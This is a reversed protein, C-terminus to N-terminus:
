SGLAILAAGHWYLHAMQITKEAIFENFFLLLRNETLRFCKTLMTAPFFNSTQGVLACPSQCQWRLLPGLEHELGERECGTDLLNNM